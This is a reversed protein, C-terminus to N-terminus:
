NGAAPARDILAAFTDVREAHRMHEAAAQVAEQIIPDYPPLGEYLYRDQFAGVTRVLIEAGLHVASEERGTAGFLDTFKDGLASRYATLFGQLAARARAASPHKNDAPHKSDARETPARHIHMWLHAVLHGVDQSPRGFHALEWDIIRIGPHRSDAPHRGDAEDTVLISPPWLDGMIVCLGPEQLLNGLAVAKSGLAAADPLGARVCLDRVAQYQVELRTRQITRSDFLEALRADDHSRVHLTGIFRGVHRGIEASLSCGDASEEDQGRQRLWAGLDPCTGVDEMVLVHAREDFDLLRPPRVVPSAVDALAGRPGFAALARAEIVIRGPDLPINPMAAIHPPAVKVIIPEPRGPVRWVCNLYGGPLPEPQRAAKLDPIRRKLHELVQEPTACTRTTTNV